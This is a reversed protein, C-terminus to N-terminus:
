IIGDPKDDIILEGNGVGEFYNRAMMLAEDITEAGPFFRSGEKPTFIIKDREIRVSGGFLRPVYEAVYSEANFDYGILLNGAWENDSSNRVRYKLDDM